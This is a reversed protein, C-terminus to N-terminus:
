RALSERNAPEAAIAGQPLSAVDDLRPAVTVNTFAVANPRDVTQRHDHGYSAAFALDFVALCAVAVWLALRRGGPLMTDSPVDNRSSDLGLREPRRTLSLRMQCM